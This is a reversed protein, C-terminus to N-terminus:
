ISEGEVVAEAKRLKRKKIVGTFSGELDAPLDQVTAETPQEAATSQEEAAIRKKVRPAPVPMEASEEVQAEQVGEAQGARQEEASGEVVAASRLKLCAQKKHGEEGCHFCKLIYPTFGWSGLWVGWQGATVLLLNRQKTVGGAM